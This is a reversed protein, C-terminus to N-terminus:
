VNTGNTGGIAKLVLQGIDETRLKRAKEIAACEGLWEEFATRIFFRDGRVGVRKGLVTGRDFLGILRKRSLGSREGAERLSMLYGNEGKRSEM